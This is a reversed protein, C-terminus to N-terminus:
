ASWSREEACELWALMLIEKPDGLGFDRCCGEFFINYRQILQMWRESSIRKFLQELSARMLVEFNEKQNGSLGESQLRRYEEVLARTVRVFRKDIEIAAGLYLRDFLWRKKQADWTAGTASSIKELIAPSLGKVGRAGVELAKLTALPADILEALAAQTLPALRSGMAKRLKFLPHKRFSSRPGRPRPM